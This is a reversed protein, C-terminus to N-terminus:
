DVFPRWGNQYLWDRQGSIIPSGATNCVSDSDPGFTGMYESVTGGSYKFVKGSKSAAVLAFATTDTALENPWCYVFNWGVGGAQMPNGYANQSLKITGIADLETEGEPLHGQIAEYQRIQNAMNRLDSEIATDHARNQIGNYAVIVIGALIGIVVIVILLEVITFGSKNVM